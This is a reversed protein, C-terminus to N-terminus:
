KIKIVLIDKGWESVLHINMYKKEPSHEYADSGTDPQRKHVLWGQFASNTLSQPQTVGTSLEYLCPGSM